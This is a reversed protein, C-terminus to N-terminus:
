FLIQFKLMALEQPITTTVRV